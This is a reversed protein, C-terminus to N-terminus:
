TTSEGASIPLFTASTKCDTFTYIKIIVFRQNSNNMFFLSTSNLILRKKIFLLHLADKSLFTKGM